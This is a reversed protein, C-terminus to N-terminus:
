PRRVPLRAPPVCMWTLLSAARACGCASTCRGRQPFPCRAAEAVRRHMTWVSSEGGGGARAAGSAQPGDRGRVAELAKRQERTVPRMPRARRPSRTQSTDLEISADMGWILSSALGQALTALPRAVRTTRLPFPRNLLRDVLVLPGRQASRRALLHFSQGQHDWVAPQHRGLPWAWQAWVGLESAAQHRLPRPPPPPRSAASASQRHRDASAQMPAATAASQLRSATM